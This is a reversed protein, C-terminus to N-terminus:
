STAIVKDNDRRRPEFDADVVLEVGESPLEVRDNLGVSVGVAGEQVCADLVVEFTGKLADSRVGSGSPAGIAAADTPNLLVYPGRARRAIPWSQASLEDSGFVDHIPFPALGKEPSLKSVSVSYDFEADMDVDASAPVEFLRKGGSRGILDGNVEDQFKFISQNSNWGPSWSYPMTAGSDNGPHQGEMSYSYPTEDDLTSKPEHFQSM